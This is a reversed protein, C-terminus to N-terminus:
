VAAPLLPPARPQASRSLRTRESGPNLISLPSSALIPPAIRVDDRPAQGGVGGAGLFAAACEKPCGRAGAAARLEPRTDRSARAALQKASPRCCCGPTGACAMRCVASEGRGPLLFTPSYAFLLACGLVAARARRSLGGTLHLTGPRGPGPRIRELMATVFAPM